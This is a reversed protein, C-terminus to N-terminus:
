DLADWLDDASIKKEKEEEKAVPKSDEAGTIKSHFDKSSEQPAGATDMGAKDWLASAQQNATDDAAKATASAIAPRLNIGFFAKGDEETKQLWERQCLVNLLEDLEPHTLRSDPPMNDVAARIDELPIQKHRLFMRLVRNIKAPLSLLHLTSLGGESDMKDLHQNLQDTITSL